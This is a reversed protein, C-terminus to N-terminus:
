VTQAARHVGMVGELTRAIEGVTAYTEVADIMAPMVNETGEAAARLVALSRDVEAQSRDRRLLKLAEQRRQLLHMDPTWVEFESEEEDSRHVNVEVWPREGSDIQQQLRFARQDIEQQIAGSEVGAVVGGYEDDIRTLTQQIREAIEDTMAEVFYSGGLPDVTATVDSELAVIQQTRLALMQTHETPIEYAEDITTGLMAQAGGMAAGLCGLTGRVLNLEPVRKAFYSGCTAVCTFRLGLSRDSTAGFDDRMMHAWTRRAARFKAAEEFFHLGTGFFFSIRPAIEDITLGRALLRDIYTRAIAFSTGIEQDPAAGSEHLLVGRLNFPYVKPMTRIVFEATDTVLRLSPEVPYRWTGRGLYEHLLDNAVTGRIQSLDSGQRKAVAVLMAVMVPAMSNINMSLPVKDLPVESLLIEFDALSDVAVGVRGVEHMAEPDDSDYGIQTPLDFAINARGNGQELLYRFRRNADAADGFGSYLSPQWPRTRYGDVAINRTFPFHGPSGLKDEYGGPNDDPTYEAKIEFGSEAFRHTHSM